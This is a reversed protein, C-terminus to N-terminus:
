SNVVSVDCRNPKEGSHVRMHILLKYRANFSKRKRPCEEWLCVFEDGRKAKGELHKAEIHNV